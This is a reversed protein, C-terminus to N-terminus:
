ESEHTWRMTSNNFCICVSSRASELLRVYVARLRYRAIYTNYILYIKM